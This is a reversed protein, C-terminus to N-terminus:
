RLFHFSCTKVKKRHYQIKLKQKLIFVKATPPDEFLLKSKGGWM